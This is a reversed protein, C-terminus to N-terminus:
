GPQPTTLGTRYDIMARGAMRAVPVAAGPGQGDPKPFARAIRERDHERQQDAPTVLEPGSLADVIRLRALTLWYDLSDAIRSLVRRLRVDLMAPGAAPSIRRRARYGAGTRAGSTGLHCRAQALAGRLRTLSSLAWSPNFALCWTVRKGVYQM